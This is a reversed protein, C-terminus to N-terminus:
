KKANNIMGMVVVDIWRGNKFVFDRLEGEKSFGERSYFDVARKNDAIVELKLTHLKFIGFAIKKLLAILLRGTGSQSIEPNVYIGLYANRNKFNIRNLSVTGVSEGRGNKILWYSNKNDNKLSEIFRSHEKLSIIHGDYMWRRINKNNRWRRVMEKEEKNLNVFNIAISNKLRFRKRLTIM